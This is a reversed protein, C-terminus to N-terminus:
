PQRERRIRVLLTWVVYAYTTWIGGLVVGFLVVQLPVPYPSIFGPQRIKFTVPAGAVPSGRGDAVTALVRVTGDRGPQATLAVRAPQAGEASSTVMAVLLLNLLLFDCPRRM